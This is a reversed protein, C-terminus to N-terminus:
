RRGVMVMMLLAGCRGLVLPSVSIIWRRRSLGKVVEGSPRSCEHSVWRNRADELQEEARDLAARLDDVEDLSGRAPRLDHGSSLVLQGVTIHVPWRCARIGFDAM